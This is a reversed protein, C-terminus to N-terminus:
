QENTWAKVEQMNEKLTKMVECIEQMEDEFLKGRYLEADFYVEETIPNVLIPVTKEYLNVVIESESFIEIGLQRFEKDLCKRM